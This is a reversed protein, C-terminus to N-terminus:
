LDTSMCANKIYISVSSKIISARLSARNCLIRFPMHQSKIAKLTVTSCSVAADANSHM